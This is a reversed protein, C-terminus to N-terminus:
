GFLQNNWSSLTLFFVSITENNGMCLCGDKKLYIVWFLAFDLSNRTPNLIGFYWSMVYNWMFSTKFNIWEASGCDRDTTIVIKVCQAQGNTQEDRKLIDCFLIELSFLSLVHSQQSDRRPIMSSGYIQKWDGQSDFGQGIRPQQERQDMQTRGPLMAVWSKTALNQAM